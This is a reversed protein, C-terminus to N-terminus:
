HNRIVAIINMPDFGHVGFSDYSKSSHGEINYALEFYGSVASIRIKINFGNKDDVHKVDVVNLHAGGIDIVVVDGKQLNELM